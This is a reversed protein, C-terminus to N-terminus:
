SDEDANKGLTGCIPHASQHFVAETDASRTKRRKDDAEQATIGDARRSNDMQIFGSSNGFLVRFTRKAKAVIGTGSKKDANDSADNKM